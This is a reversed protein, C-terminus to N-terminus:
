VARHELKVLKVHQMLEQEKLLIDLIQADLLVNLKLYVLIVVQKSSLMDMIVHSLFLRHKVLKFIQILLHVHLVHEM